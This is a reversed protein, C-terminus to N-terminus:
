SPFKVWKRDLITAAFALSKGTHETFTYSSRSMLRWEYKVTATPRYTYDGERVTRNIKSFVSINGWQKKKQHQLGVRAIAEENVLNELDCVAVCCLRYSGEPSTILEDCLGRSSLVCYECCVSVWAGRHSEFM